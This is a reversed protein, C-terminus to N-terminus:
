RVFRVLRILHPPIFRACYEELGKVSHGRQRLFDDEHFEGQLEDVRDLYRTARLIEHEAGECDIKLLRCRGIGNEEFVADLTTSKAKFGRRGGRSLGGGGSNEHLIADIQVDRGDATVALNFARLNSVGNREANRVLSAYNSPVPEFAYVTAYPHRKALYVSVTGVHAGIDIVVDGPGIEVDGLAYEVRVEELVLPLIPSASLDSLVVSVGDLEFVHAPGPRWRNYLGRLGPIRVLRQKLRGFM